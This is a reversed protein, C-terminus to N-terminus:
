CGSDQPPREELLKTTTAATTSIPIVIIPTFSSAADVNIEVPKLKRELSSRSSLSSRFSKRSGAVTTVVTSTSGVVTASFYKKRLDNASAVGCKVCLTIAEPIVKFKTEDKEIKQAM